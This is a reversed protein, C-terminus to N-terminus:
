PTRVPPIRCCHILPSLMKKGQIHPICIGPTASTAPTQAAELNPSNPTSLSRYVNMSFPGPLAPAAVNPALEGTCLPSQVAISTAVLPRLGVNLASRGNQQFVTPPVHQLTRSSPLQPLGLSAGINDIDIDHTHREITDWLLRVVDDLVRTKERLESLGVQLNHDEGERRAMEQALADHVTTGHMEFEEKLCKFSNERLDV